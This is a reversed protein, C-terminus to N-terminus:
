PFASPQLKDLLLVLVLTNRRIVGLHVLTPTYKVERQLNIDAGQMILERACDSHGNYSAVMLATTRFQFSISPDCDILM